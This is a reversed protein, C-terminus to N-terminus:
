LSGVGESSLSPPSLRLNPSTSLTQFLWWLFDTQCSCSPPNRYICLVLGSCLAHSLSSCASRWSEARWQLEKFDTQDSNQPVLGISSERHRGPISQDIGCVPHIAFLLFMNRVTRSAPFDLILPAVSETDPSPGRGPEHIGGEPLTKLHCLSAGQPRKGLPVLGM